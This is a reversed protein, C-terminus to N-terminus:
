IFLEPNKNLYDESLPILSSHNVSISKKSINGSKVGDPNIANFEVEVELTTRSKNIKTAIGIRNTTWGKSVTNTAYYKGIEIPLGFGDTM